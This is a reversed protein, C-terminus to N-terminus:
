HWKEVVFGVHVLEPEFGSRRHPFGAVLRWLFQYSGRNHFYSCLNSEVDTVIIKILLIYRKSNRGEKSTVTM